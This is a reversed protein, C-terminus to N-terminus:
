DKSKIRDFDKKGASKSMLELTPRGVFAGVMLGGRIYYERGKEITIPMETKTETRASVMTPGFTRIQVTTKWKNKVHCIKEDGLYLDYGVLVGVPANRRYIHVLAYDWDAAVEDFNEISLTQGLKPSCATAGFLAVLILLYYFKKM